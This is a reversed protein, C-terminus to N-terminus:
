KILKQSEIGISQTRAMKILKKTRTDDDVGDSILQANFSELNSLILLQNIDANDRINGKKKKNSKRWESATTGFVIMNLRDAENAYTYGQITKASTEAILHDKIANTHFKYNVKSLSRKLNWDLSLKNSEDEKLRQYDKIVYLQFAPSIWSAFNFAIDSQAFTGGGRGSKSSIGIANTSSTWKKPSMVFANAGSANIFEDAAEQNFNENNMSEWLSLFELTSRSRIWNQIIANSETSNKYKAIDTLSIFDTRGDTNFINIELGDPSITEHNIKSM